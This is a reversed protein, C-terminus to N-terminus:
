KPKRGVTYDLDDWFIEVFHGGPTQWNLIGFRDFTAGSKRHEATLKLVVSQGDLTVTLAGNGNDAQPQYHLTFDHSKGDPPLVPGTRSDGSEGAGTQYVARHYQGVRSPGEIGAGIFNPPTRRYARQDTLATKSNFWGLLAGSDSTSYPLCVKGSAYLEDDLTLPGVKPDAYYTWPAKRFIVGGAEGPAGGAVQNTFSCGFNHAGDTVDSRYEVENGAGEWGPDRSFDELTGDITIDDLYAEMFDGSELMVNFIGFRDFDAGEERHGPKLPLTSRRGDLTFTIEGLGGAGQPDYRLEWRHPVSREFRKKDFGGDVRVDFSGGPLKKPPRAKTIDVPNLDDISHLNLGEVLMEDTSRRTVADRVMYYPNGVMWYSAMGGKHTGYEFTARGYGNTGFMRFALANPTRWGRSKSNFWGVMIASSVHSERLFLTGSASLRDNLSKNPIKKAYYAIPKSKNITGGIEGAAAGGAFHGARYGFDQKVTRPTNPPNRNNMGEWAPDATFNERRQLLRDAPEAGWAPAALTLVLAATLVLPRRPSRFMLHSSTVISTGHTAHALVSADFTPRVTKGKRVRPGADHLQRPKSTM